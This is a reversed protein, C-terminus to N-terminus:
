PKDSTRYQTSNTAGISYPVFVNVMVVYVFSGVKGSSYSIMRLFWTLEEKGSLCSRLISHQSMLRPTAAKLLPKNSDTQRFVTGTTKAKASHLWLLKWIKNRLQLSPKWALVNKKQLQVARRGSILSPTRKRKRNSWVPRWTACLKKSSQYEIKLFAFVYHLIRLLSPDCVSRSWLMGEWGQLVDEDRALTAQSEHLAQETQRLKAELEKTYQPETVGGSFFYSATQSDGGLSVSTAKEERNATSLLADKEMKIIQLEQELLTCREESTTCNEQWKDIVANAEEEQQELRLDM